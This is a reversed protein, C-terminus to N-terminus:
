RRLLEAKLNHPSSDTYYDRCDQVVPATRQLEIDLHNFYLMTANGGKGRGKEVEVWREMRSNTPEDLFFFAM